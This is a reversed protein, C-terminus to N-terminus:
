EAEVTRCVEALFKAVAKVHQVSQGFDENIGYLAIVPKGDLINVGAEISIGESDVLGSKILASHDWAGKYFECDAHDCWSPHQKPNGLNEELQELLDSAKLGRENALRILDQVTDPWEAIEATNETTEKIVTSAIQNM